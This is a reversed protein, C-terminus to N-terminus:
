LVFVVFSIEAHEFPYDAHCNKELMQVCQTFNRINEPHVAM